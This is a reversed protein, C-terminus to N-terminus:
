RAGTGLTAPPPGTPRGSMCRGPLPPVSPNAEGTRKRGLRTSCLVGLTGLGFLNLASPEPTSSITAALGTSDNFFTRDRGYGVAFDLTDGRRLPLSATFSAAGGRGFSTVAGDFLSKGNRLVHVDTSTPGLFDEGFFAASVVFTGAAPATWRAIADEGNPGPHLGFEGPEYHVSSGLDIPSTTGNHYIGPNGDSALDGRWQDIGDRVRHDTDLIFPSGLSQSWGYSWVGNPNNTPSFDKAVDYFM